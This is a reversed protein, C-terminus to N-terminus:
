PLRGLPVSDPTFSATEHRALRWVGSLLRVSLLDFDLPLWPTRSNDPTEVDTTQSDESPM